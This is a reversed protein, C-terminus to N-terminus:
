NSVESVSLRVVQGRGAEVEADPGFTFQMNFAAKWGWIMEPRGNPSYRPNADVWGWYAGDPDEVVEVEVAEAHGYALVYQPDGFHEFQYHRQSREDARGAHMRWSKNDEPM